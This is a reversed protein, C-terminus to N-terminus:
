DVNEIQKAAKVTNKLLMTITLPGVGGPVPTIWSAQDLVEDFRVDGVLKGAENRNVGVDIVVTGPSVHEKGILGARGVAVILVDAQKTIATLDQTHSHCITVTAHEQLLLLSVPKGVINSRGVVVVRKGKLSTGTRKILEIIGAPTCSVFTDDGIMLKGINIPHFGDVDKRPDITEIVAKEEIQPPLPLQVLIGHVNPNQNLREVTDLLEQQSITDPMRIVESRMGVEECARMKGTVYSQSAPDEGVLVVTLAPTVGKEKLRDVEKAIDARIDQAVEKGSLITAM